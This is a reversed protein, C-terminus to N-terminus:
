YKSESIKPWYSKGGGGKGGRKEGDNVNAQGKHM